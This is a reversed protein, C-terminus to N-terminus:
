YPVNGNYTEPAKKLADVCEAGGQIDPMVYTHARFSEHKFTLVKQSTNKDDHAGGGGELPISKMWYMVKDRSTISKSRSSMSGSRAKSKGEGIAAEKLFRLKEDMFSRQQEHTANMSMEKEVLLKQKEIAQEKLIREQEDFAKLAADLVSSNSIKSIVSKARRSKPADPIVLKKGSSCHPCQWVDVNDNITVCARHYVYNCKECEQTSSEDDITKSCVACTGASKSNLENLM